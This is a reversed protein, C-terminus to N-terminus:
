ILRVNREWRKNCLLCHQVQYRRENTFSFPVGKISEIVPGSWESKRHLSFYCRLPQPNSNYVSSIDASYPSNKATDIEIAIPKAQSM